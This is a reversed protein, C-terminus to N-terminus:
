EVEMQVNINFHYYKNQWDTNVADESVYIRLEYNNTRNESINRTDLINNKIDSLRGTKIVKGNLSLQYKLQSRSLLEKSSYSADDSIITDELIVNYTSPTSNTNEVEFSYPELSKATEDDLPILGDENITNNAEDLRVELSSVTSNEGDNDYFFNYWLMSTSFIFAFLAIGALILLIMKKM